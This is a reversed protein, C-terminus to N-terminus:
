KNKEFDDDKITSDNDLKINVQGEQEDSTEKNPTKSEENENNAM